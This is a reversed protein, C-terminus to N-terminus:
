ITDSTEFLSHKHSLNHSTSHLQHHLSTHLAPSSYKDEPFATVEGMKSDTPLLSLIFM